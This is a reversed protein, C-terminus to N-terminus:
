RFNTECNFYHKHNSLSHLCLNSNNISLDQNITKESNIKNNLTLKLIHKINNFYISSMNPPITSILSGEISFTDNIMLKYSKFINKKISINQDVIIQKAM